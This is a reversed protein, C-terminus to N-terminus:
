KVNEANSGYQRAESGLSKSASEYYKKVANKQNDTMQPIKSSLIGELIGKYVSPYLNWIYKNYYEIMGDIDKNVVYLAIRCIHTEPEDLPLGLLAITYAVEQVEEASYKVNYRKDVGNAICYMNKRVMDFILRNIEDTGMYKNIRTKELMIRKFLPDTFRISSLVLELYDKSFREFDQSNEFLYIFVPSADMSHELLAKAYPLGTLMNKNAEFAAKLGNLSNAPVIAAKVKEIFEEAKASGVIRNVEEGKSNLILFTPFATITFKKQVDSGEGKDEMDLKISIFGSNLFDGCVKQTFVNRSMEMCPVCWKTYCDVFVMTSNKKDAAAKAIAQSLTIKEFKVGQDQTFAKGTLFTSFLVALIFTKINIYSRKLFHTQMCFKTEM